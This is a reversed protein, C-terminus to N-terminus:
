TASCTPRRITPICGASPPSWSRPRPGPRRGQGAQRPGGRHALRVEPRALMFLTAEDKNSGILLPVDASLAPATPHFPHAPLAVGDAVPSFVRLPAEREAAGAGARGGGPDGRDVCGASGGPRPRRARIRRAGGQRGRHRQSSRRRAPGPGSQVMAKHFLGRGGAHGDPHLGEHRRRVRRLDDRQGSRRRLGRYQRAGMGAGAVIDLMGALGSQAYAPGVIEGLHLYGFVNLRHNVTVVVVDGKRALAAGDYMAAGGSGNAYGGGHLWVMVPRRATAWVQADLRQHVPLGRQGRARRPTPCTAPSRGNPPTPGLGVQIAPAGLAVADAVATWPAPRGRRGFACPASRRRVTACARSPRSEGAEVYGRVPGNSTAVVATREGIVPAQPENADDAM